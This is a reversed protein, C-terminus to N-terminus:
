LPKVKRKNFKWYVKLFIGLTHTLSNRMRYPLHDGLRIMRYMLSAYILTPLIWLYLGPDFSKHKREYGAKEATKGAVLDAVRVQRPSMETKWLNM